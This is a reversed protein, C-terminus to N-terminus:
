GAEEARTESRRLYAAARELLEPDDQFQGIGQNCGLCLIGRIVGTDHHHDVHLSAEREPKPECIACGGGQKELLADFDDASMGFTRRYYYDRAARKRDPRAQYERQYALRRDRNEQQWRKVMGIYKAPDAAYASESTPWIAHKASTAIAM